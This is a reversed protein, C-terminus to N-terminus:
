ALGLNKLIETPTQSRNLSYLHLGPAHERILRECLSTAVEVGLARVAEPDGEVADLRANLEDPIIAHNMAAMRRAGAVNIIPMVGPLVPKTCGLTALEDIMRLYDDADFFFQTVAFDSRELKAALHRRDADRDGGSRPHLEPHAAVGVCFDGSTRILEVLELAYTFDGGPPPADAPPDGALALINTVGAARYQTLIELIEAKTHGVCTLHAMAPFDYRNDIDIVLDRTRDRTSGLAGYTVSVFSPQLPALEDLARRLQEEMEPTKPPFFEFSITPGRELLSRIDTM